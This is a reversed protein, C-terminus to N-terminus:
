SQQLYHPRGLCRPECMGEETKPMKNKKRKTKNWSKQPDIYSPMHRWTADNYVEEGSLGKEKIDDRLKDFWRKKPRGIARRRQVKM